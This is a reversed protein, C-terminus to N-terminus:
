SSNDRRVLLLYVAGVLLVAAAILWAAATGGTWDYVNFAKNYSFLGPTITESGPGGGTIVLISEATALTDCMMLLLVTLILLRMQPFVIHRLRVWLSMGELQALDWYAPSIVLLGPLLLFIALPVKRWVDIGIVSMLAYGPGVLFPITRVHFVGAVYAPIGHSAQLLFRWMVGNAVPSILWPILLVFRIVRRGRFAARLRYAALIGIVLELGVSVVTFVTVNVISKRFEPDAVVRTYNDLGIFVVPAGSLPSYSTFSSFFGFVSPWILFPIVILCFPAIFMLQQRRSLM